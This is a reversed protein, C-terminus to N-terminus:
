EKLVKSEPTARSRARKMQGYLHWVGRYKMEPDVYKELVHFLFYYFRCSSWVLAGVLIATVINPSRQVILCASMAAIALFMWGKAVIIRKSTLDGM